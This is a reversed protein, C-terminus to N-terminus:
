QRTMLAAVFGLLTLLITLPYLQLLKTKLPIPTDFNDLDFKFPIESFRLGFSLEFRECVYAFSDNTLFCFEILIIAPLIYLGTESSLVQM